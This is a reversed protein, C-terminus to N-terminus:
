FIMTEIKFYKIKIFRCLLGKILHFRYKLITIINSSNFGTLNAGHRRYYILKDDIFLVKSFINAINGIWIDHMPVGQPFPLIYNKLESKFAMTCGLYNNRLLNCMFGDIKFLKFSRLGKFSDIYIEGNSNCIYADSIILGVDSYEEFNRLMVSIKHECWIDDQDSLFIIDGKTLSIAREFSKVPGERSKNQFIKIRDDSINKIIHITNDYSCDDVIIIESNGPLRRIISFLQEEIFKEGNYTALCVSVIM